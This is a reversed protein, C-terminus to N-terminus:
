SGHKIAKLLSEAIREIIVKQEEFPLSKLWELWADFSKGGDTFQMVRVGGSVADFDRLRM